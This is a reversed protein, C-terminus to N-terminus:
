AGLGVDARPRLGVAVVTQHHDADVRGLEGKLVVDVANPARSRLSRDGVRDDDVVVVFDPAGEGVVVPRRQVEGVTFADDAVVVEAFAAVLLEIAGDLLQEPDLALGDDDFALAHLHRPSQSLRRM